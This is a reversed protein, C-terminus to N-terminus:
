TAEAASDASGGQRDPQVAEVRDTTSWAAPLQWFIAAAGVVTLVAALAFPWPRYRGQRPVSETDRIALRLHATDIRHKGQGFAAMLSKHALVNVLRPFGGSAAHLRRLAAPTFVLGGANGAITLRHAVYAATAQRDMPTLRYSFTIRQRLQRFMTANLRLDLEPQGFLVVQLLKRKETELNTLLRLAELTENPMAQAEDICLVVQKDQNALTVLKRTIVKLTRHQGLNRPLALGLEDALALNLAPASLNPNPVYTTYFRHDLTNLLKRCLLTKGTGVEGTVKIFGEGAKLAVLLTDLADQYSGHAFFYGTDPTLSFPLERLGFHAQYM